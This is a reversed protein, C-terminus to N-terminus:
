LLIDKGRRLPILAIMLAFATFVLPMAVFLAPDSAQSSINPYCFGFHLPLAIGRMILPMLQYCVLSVLTPIVLPIARHKGVLFSCGFSILSCAGSWAAAWLAFVGNYVYPSSERLDFLLGDSPLIDLYIPMGLYGNFSGELPFAVFALVQLASLALFTLLFGGLYSILANLAYHFKLSSRSSVCAAVGRRVDGYAADSFVLAALVPMFFYLYVRMSNVQMADMNWAWAYAASPLEGVDSGYFHLCSEIFAALVFALSLTVAIKLEVRCVLRQRLLKFLSANGM